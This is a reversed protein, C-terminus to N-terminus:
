LPDLFLSNAMCYKLLTLCIGSIRINRDLVFLELAKCLASRRIIWTAGLIGVLISSSCYGSRTRMVEKVM